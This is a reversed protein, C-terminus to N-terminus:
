SEAWFDRSSAVLQQLTCELCITIPVLSRVFHLCCPVWDRAQLVISRIEWLSMHRMASHSSSDAHLNRKSCRVSLFQWGPWKCPFNGGVGISGSTPITHAAVQDVERTNHRGVFILRGISTPAPSLDDCSCDVSKAPHQHLVCLNVLAVPPAGLTTCMCYLKTARLTVGLIALYNYQKCVTTLNGQLSAYNTPGASKAPAASM